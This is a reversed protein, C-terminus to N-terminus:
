KVVVPIRVPRVAEAKPLTLVLIGDKVTAGIGLKFYQKLHEVRLLVEREEAM